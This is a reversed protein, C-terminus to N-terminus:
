VHQQTLLEVNKQHKFLLDAAKNIVTKQEDTLKSNTDISDRYHKKLEPDLMFYIDDSIVDYKKNVDSSRVQTSDTVTYVNDKINESDRINLFLNITSEGPRKEKNDTFEIFLADSDDVDGLVYEIKKPELLNKDFVMSVNHARLAGEITKYKGDQYEQVATEWDGFWEKFNDTRVLNWEAINLKSVKNNPTRVGISNDLNMMAAIDKMTTNGSLDTVIITKKPLISKFWEKLKKFLSKIAQVLKNNNQYTKNYDGHLESDSVALRGIATVLAEELIESEPRLTKDSKIKNGDEDTYYKYRETIEPIIKQGLESDQLERILRNYLSINTKKIVEIFPHLVEHIPSDLTAKALNITVTNGQIKSAFNLKKSNVYQFQIGTRESLNDAINKITQESVSITVDTAYQTVGYIENLDEYTHNIYDPTIDQDILTELDDVKLIEEYFPKIKFSKMM